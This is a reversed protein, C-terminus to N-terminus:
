ECKWTYHCLHVPEGPQEMGSSSAWAWCTCPLLDVNPSALPPQKRRQKSWVVTWTRGIGPQASSRRSWCGSRSLCCRWRPSLSINRRLTRSSWSPMRASTQWTCSCGLSAWCGDFNPSTVWESLVKKCSANHNRTGVAPRHFPTPEKATM